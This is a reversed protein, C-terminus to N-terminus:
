VCQQDFVGMFYLIPLVVAATLATVVGVYAGTYAVLLGVEKLFSGVEKLQALRHGM